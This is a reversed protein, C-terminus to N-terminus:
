RCTRDTNTPSDIRTVAFLVLYLDIPLFAASRRYGHWLVLPKPMHNDGMQRGFCEFAM